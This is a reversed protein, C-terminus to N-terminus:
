FINIKMHSKFLTTQNNHKKTTPGFDRINMITESFLEAFHVFLQIIEKSIFFHTKKNFYRCHLKALNSETLKVYM